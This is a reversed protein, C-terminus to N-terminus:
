TQGVATNIKFAGDSENFQRSTIKSNDTETRGLYIDNFLYDDIGSFGSMKFNVNKATNSYLFSGAFLRLSVGKQRKKYTFHYQAEVFTKMFDKGTQLSGKLSYPDISRNNILAYKLENYYENITNQKTYISDFVFNSNSRIFYNKLFVQQRISSRVDKRFEFKIDPEFKTYSYLFSKDPEANYNTQTGFAYHTLGATFSANIKETKFYNYTISAHGVVDKANFSYMPMVLYELKKPIIGQNHFAIGAMWKDYNNWGIIPSYFIQTYQPRELGTFLKFKVPELKRFLGSTRIANNKM